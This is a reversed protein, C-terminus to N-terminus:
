SGPSDAEAPKLGVCVSDADVCSGVSARWTAVCSATETDTGCWSSSGGEAEIVCM